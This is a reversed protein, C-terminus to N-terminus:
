SVEAVRLTRENNLIPCEFEGRRNVEHITCENPEVTCSAQELIAIM